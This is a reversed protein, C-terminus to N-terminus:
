HEELTRASLPEQNASLFSGTQALLGAAISTVTRM